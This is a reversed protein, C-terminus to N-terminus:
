FNEVIDIDDDSDDNTNSNGRKQLITQTKSKEAGSKMFSIKDAM